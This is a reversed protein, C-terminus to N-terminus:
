RLKKFAMKYANLREGPKLIKAHTSEGTKLVARQLPLKRAQKDM